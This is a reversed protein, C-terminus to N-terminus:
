NGQYGRHKRAEEIKAYKKEVCDRCETNNSYQKIDMSGLGDFVLSYGMGEYKKGCTSCIHSDTSNSSSSNSSDSSSKSDNSGFALFLFAGVILTSGVTKFYKNGKM